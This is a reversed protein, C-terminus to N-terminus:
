NWLGGTESKPEGTRGLMLWEDLGANSVAISINKVFIIEFEVM